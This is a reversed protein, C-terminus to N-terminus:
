GEIATGLRGYGDYAYLQKKSEDGYIAAVDAIFLTHDGIEVMDSLRCEFVVKSAEVVKPAITKADALAIGFEAAKDTNRGSCKGCGLAAERLSEDVICLAFEGGERINGGSYGKNSLCAGIKVPHNSLYTWWSVAMINTKGENDASTLLAFPAPATMRQAQGITLDTMIM